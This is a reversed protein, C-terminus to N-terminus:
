LCMKRIGVVCLFLCILMMVHHEHYNTVQILCHLGATSDDESVCKLLKKECEGFQVLIQFYIIRYESCSRARDTHPRISVSDQSCMGMHHANIPTKM